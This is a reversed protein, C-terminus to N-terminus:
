CGSVTGGAVSDVAFPGDGVGDRGLLFETPIAACIQWGDGSM